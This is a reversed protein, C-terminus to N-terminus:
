YAPKPGSRENSKRMPRPPFFYDLLRKMAAIHGLGARNELPM